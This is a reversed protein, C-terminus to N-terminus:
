PQCFTFTPRVAKNSGLSSCRKPGARHPFELKWLLSRCAMDKFQGNSALWNWLLCLEKSLRPRNPFLNAEMLQGVLELDKNTIEWGQM